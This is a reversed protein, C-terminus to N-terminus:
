TEDGYFSSKASGSKKVTQASGLRSDLVGDSVLQRKDDKTADGRQQVFTNQVAGEDTYEEGTPGNIPKDILGKRAQKGVIRYGTIHEVLGFMIKDTNVTTMEYFTDGFQFFDGEEVVIGRDILDRYHLYIEISSLAQHGYRDTLKESPNWQVRCDIEVPPDFVRETMEDYVNEADSLDLRPKYYYIVQGIVDKTIEKTVDSIFDIERATIFLRAM